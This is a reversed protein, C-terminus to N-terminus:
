DLKIEILKKNYLYSALKKELYARFKVWLGIIGGGSFLIAIYLHLLEILGVKKFILYILYIVVLILLTLIFTYLISDKKAKKEASKRLDGKIKQIRQLWEKEKEQEKKSVASKLQQLFEKEKERIEKEQIKEKLKAAKEIEELVFESTIKDQEGEDFERLLSEAYGHYFLMLINEDEVKEERKLQQLIEYFRDWIRRKIFLDRSYASIISKLPLETSPDKLWLINTLLRDLIVESIIGNEKHGMEIFNFRSLRVDSTLFFVKSDEIKRVPKGQIEEVKEIAMLDHNQHFLGQFPKYKEIINRLDENKPHYTKINKDKVWEIEIGEKDLIEEVNIIFEKANSKKWGKRKLSSYLTDVGISISYRNSESIYGNIVKCIEDITFNFVKLEFDYEKLLNFLEKAPENFEPTHLDLIYFVFNTDLFIQCHRFRKTGIEVMDSPKQVYLIASIISGLIMDKLTEYIQPKQHEVDKIYKILLNEHGKLKPISLENIVSSPNLFEIFPEINISLFSIILSNIRDQSLSVNNKSFFQKIDELLSNIRREVEKDTELKDLYKLGEDKLKYRREKQLIYKRRKARNLITKLVNIPIELDFKEKLNRKIFQSDVFKQAPFTKIAFPWFSDIYDEGQDYLSKILAYTYILRKM